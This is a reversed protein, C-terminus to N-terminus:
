SGRTPPPVKASLLNDWHLLQENLAIITKHYNDAMEAVEEHLRMAGNITVASKAEISRLQEGCKPLERLEVPNIYQELREVEALCTAFDQLQSTHQLVYNRKAHQHMVVRSVSAHEAQLWGEVMDVSQEFDTLKKDRQFFDNVRSGLEAIRESVAVHPQESTSASTGLRFECVALRQSLGAIQSSLSLHTDM